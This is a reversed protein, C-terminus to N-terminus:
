NQTAYMKQCETTVDPASFSSTGSLLSMSLGRIAVSFLKNGLLSDSLDVLTRGANAFDYDLMFVVAATQYTFVNSFM